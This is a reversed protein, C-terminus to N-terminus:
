FLFLCCFLSYLLFSFFFLFLISSSHLLTSSILILFFLLTFFSYLCCLSHFFLLSIFLSLTISSLFHKTYLPKQCMAWLQLFIFFLLSFLNIGISEFLNLTNFFLTIFMSSPLLFSILFSLFIISFFSQLLFFQHLYSLYSCIATTTYFFFSFNNLSTVTFILNFCSSLLSPITASANNSLLHYPQHHIWFNCLLVLELFFVLSVM